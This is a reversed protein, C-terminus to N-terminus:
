NCVCDWSAFGSANGIGVCTFEPARQIECEVSVNEPHRNDNCRVKAQGKAQCAALTDACLYASRPRVGACATLDEQARLPGGSAAPLAASPPASAAPSAGNCGALVGLSACAVLVISRRVMTTMM